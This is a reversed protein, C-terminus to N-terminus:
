LVKRTVARLNLLGGSVAILLQPLAPPLASCALALSDVTLRDLSTAGVQGRMVLGPMAAMLFDDLRGVTHLGQWAAIQSSFLSVFVLYFGVAFLGTKLFGTLFPRPRRPGILRVFAAFGLANVTVLVGQAGLVSVKDSSAELLSQRILALDLALFAVAIMAESTTFRPKTM